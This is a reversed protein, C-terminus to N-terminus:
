LTVAEKLLRRRVAEFARTQLAKVAGTGKGLVAAVEDLTLGGLVRLFLVDRQDPSLTEIIAAVHSSADRTADGHLPATADLLTCLEDDPTAECRARSRARRADTLRNRAITFVWARFCGEDGSFSPLARVVSVFVEGLLDEPEAAGRARLYRLVAPSLDRYLVRWAWEQRLRAAALVSEFSEGIAM